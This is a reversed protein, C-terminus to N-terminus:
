GLLRQVSVEAGTVNLAAGSTQFVMVEVSQGGTCSFIGAAIQSIAGQTWDGTGDDFTSTGFFLGGSNDKFRVRRINGGSGSAAWNVSAIFLYRGSRAIDITADTPTILADNDYDQTDWSISTESNNNISQNAARTARMRPQNDSTIFGTPLGFTFRETTGNDRIVFTDSTYDMGFDARVTAGDVARVLGYQGSGARDLIYFPSAKEVEMDGSIIRLGSSNMVARQVSATRFVTDDPGDLILSSFNTGDTNGVVIDNTGNIGILNGDTGSANEGQLYQANSLLLAKEHQTEWNNAKTATIVDGTNWTTKTYTGM